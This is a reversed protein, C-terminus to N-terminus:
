SRSGPYFYEVSNEKVMFQLNSIKNKLNGNGSCIGTNLVTLQGHVDAALGTALPQTKILIDALYEMQMIFVPREMSSYIDEHNLIVLSCGVDSTLTHCYHLFDLVHDSSGYAAVEMLSVDDIMITVHNRHNEPLANIIKQIKGYLDAFGGESTKEENGHTQPSYSRLALLSSFLRPLHCYQFLQPLSNAQRSPSARLFWEDRRLGRNSATERESAM